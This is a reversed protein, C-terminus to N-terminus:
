ILNLLITAAAFFGAALGVYGCAVSISHLFDEPTENAAPLPGHAILRADIESIMQGVLGGYAGARVQDTAPALLASGPTVRAANGMSM